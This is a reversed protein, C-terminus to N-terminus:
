GHALMGKSSLFIMPDKASLAIRERLASNDPPVALPDKIVFVTAATGSDFHSQNHLRQEYARFPLNLNDHAGFWPYRKIDELLALQKTKSLAEIGSYALKQSM